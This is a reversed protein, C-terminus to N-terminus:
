SGWVIKRAPYVIDYIQQASLEPYLTQLQPIVAKETYGSQVKGKSESFLQRADAAASQRIENMSPAKAAGGGRSARMAALQYDQALKQQAIQYDQEAKAQAAVNGYAQNYQQANLQNIAQQLQNQAQTQQTSLNALAPLYREGVYRAQESPQFGSFSVGRNQAATSIDRFANIKAQELASKQGEYQTPLASIQQQILARQPDYISALQSYAQNLKSQDM